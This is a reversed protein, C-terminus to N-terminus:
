NIYYSLVMEQGNRLVKVAFRKEGKLQQYLGQGAGVSNPVPHGNVSIVKDGQQLGLKTRLYSNEGLTDIQYKGDVFQGSGENYVLNWADDWSQYKEVMVRPVPEPKMYVVGEQRRLWSYNGVQEDAPVSCSSDFYNESAGPKPVTGVSSAGKAGGTKATAAGGPHTGGRAGPASTPVHLPTFHNQIVGGNAVTRADDLWRDFAIQADVEERSVDSQKPVISFMTVLGATGVIVLGAFAVIIKEVTEIRM